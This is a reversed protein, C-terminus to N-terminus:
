HHQRRLEQAPRTKTSLANGSAIYLLNRSDEAIGAGSQWFGGLVGNPTANWIAKQQLTQTDYALV